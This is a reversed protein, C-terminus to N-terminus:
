AMTAGEPEFIGEAMQEFNVVVGIAGRRIIGRRQFVHRRLEVRLASAGAPDIVQVQKAVIDGFEAAKHLSTQAAAHGFVDLQVIAPKTAAPECYVVFGVIQGAGFFMAATQPTQVMHGVGGILAFVDQARRIHKQFVADMDFGARVLMGNM